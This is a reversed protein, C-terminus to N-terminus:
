NKKDNKKVKTSILLIIPILLFTIYGLYSNYSIIDQVIDKTKPIQSTIFSIIVILTVLLTHNVKPIIKQTFTITGSGWICIACFVNMSWFIVYLGDLRRIFELYYLDVGRIINLITVQYYVLSEVGVVANSVETVFIYLMGAIVLTLLTYKYIKKNEDKHLPIFLLVEAGLFALASGKLSKIYLPIDKSNFLPMINVLKAETLLSFNIIIFGLFNITSYITCLRVLTSFDKKLSYFIVIYLLFSIAIVPTKLLFMLKLIEVYIRSIMSFFIFFYIIYIITFIYAIPKGLLTGTYEFLTQESHTYQLYTIVYTIFLFFINTIILPFWGGTGANKAMTSPLNIIGYGVTVCYIIIAIQSNKFFKNM